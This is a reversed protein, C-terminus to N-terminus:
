EAYQKELRALYTMAEQSFPLSRGKSERIAENYLRVFAFPDNATAALTDTGFQDAIRKAMYHGNPHGNNPISRLIARSHERLLQNNEDADAGSAAVLLSDVHRVTSPTAQYAKQHRRTFGWLLFRCWRHGTASDMDSPKSGGVGDDSFLYSKDILDAIGEAQLQDIARLLYARPDQKRDPVELISERGAHHLEHAILLQTGRGGLIEAMVMDVVVGDPTGRGDLNYFIFHVPPPFLNELSDRLAGEPLLAAAEEVAQQRLNGTRLQNRFQQLSDRQRKAALLVHLPRLEPRLDGQLNRLTDQLAKEESSMFVLRMLRKFSDSNRDQDRFYHHYGPASLLANWQERDPSQGQKLVSAVRYFHDVGSFDMAPSEDGSVKGSEQGQVPHVLFALLLLAILRLAMTVKKSLDALLWM